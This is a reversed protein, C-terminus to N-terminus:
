NMNEIVNRVIFILLLNITKFINLIYDGAIHAFCLVRAIQSSSHYENVLDDDFKLEM